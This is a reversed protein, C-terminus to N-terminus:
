VTAAQRDKKWRRIGAAGLVLAAMAGLTVTAPEPVIGGGAPIEEDPTTDYAWSILDFVLNGPGTSTASGYIWGYHTASSFDEYSFMIYADSFGNTLSGYSLSCVYVGDNKSGIGVTSFKQGASATRWTIIAM